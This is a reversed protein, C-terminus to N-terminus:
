HIHSRQRIVLPKNIFHHRTSLPPFLPNKDWEPPSAVQSRLLLSLVSCAGAAVPIADRRIAWLPEAGRQASFTGGLVPSTRHARHGGDFKKFPLMAAM